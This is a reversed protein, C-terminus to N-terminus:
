KVNKKEFLKKDIYAMAVCDDENYDLVKQIIKQEPSKLWDWYLVMSEFANVEEQRWSFGLFPAVKKISYTPVPIYFNNKVVEKLDICVNKLGTLRPALKSYQKIIKDIEGMEYSAWHYLVVDDLNGIYDLFESFIKEEDQKGRGLFYKFKNKEKDWLGILYVHPPESPHVDDSTEFDFYFVRKNTENKDNKKNTPVVKQLKYALTYNYVNKGFGPRLLNVLQSETYNELDKIKSIKLKNSLMDRTASGVDPILTLDQNETLVKNAYIRWPSETKDIGKPQPKQRNDRIEKWVDLYRHLEKTNEDDYQMKEGSDKLVISIEPPTFGQIIGLIYNYIGAQLKHYDKIKKSNKIETVLYCYDGLDSAAQNSKVLIDGKGYIEKEFFSLHPQYIVDAGKIMLNLTEKIAEIGYYAKIEIAHPYTKTVWAKEFETGQEMRIDRHRDIEKKEEEKPAHYRCWIGFPDNLLKYFDSPRFLEFSDIVKNNTARKILEDISVISM